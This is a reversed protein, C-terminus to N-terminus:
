CIKSLKLEKFQEEMKMFSDYYKMFQTTLREMKRADIEEKSFYYAKWTKLNSTSWFNFLNNQICHRIEHLLSGFIYRRNPKATDLEIKYDKIFGENKLIDAIKSKFNSSPLEVKKHNRLQANKVRAIMDGIPDSLSM